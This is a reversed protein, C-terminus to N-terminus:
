IYNEVGKLSQLHEASCSLLLSSNNNINTDGGDVESHNGFGASVDDGGDSTSM